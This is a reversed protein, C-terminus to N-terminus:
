WSERSKERMGMGKAQTATSRILLFSTMKLLPRKTSAMREEMAMGPYKEGTRISLMTSM